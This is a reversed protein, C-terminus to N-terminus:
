KMGEGKEDAFVSGMIKSPVAFADTISVCRPTLWSVLELTIEQILKRTEKSGWKWELLLNFMWLRTCNEAVEKWSPELNKIVKKM